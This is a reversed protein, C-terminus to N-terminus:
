GDGDGEEKRDRERERQLLSLLVAGCSPCRGKQEDGRTVPECCFPCLRVVESGKDQSM